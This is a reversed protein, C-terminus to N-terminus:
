KEVEDRSNESQILHRIKVKLTEMGEESETFTTTCKQLSNQWTKTGQSGMWAKQWSM